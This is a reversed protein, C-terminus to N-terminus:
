RVKDKVNRPLADLFVIEKPVKYKALKLECYLLLNGISLSEGQKFVIYAKPVEGYVEDPVGIVVAELIEPMKSLVEEVEVPYVIKGDCNIMDISRNVYYKIIGINIVGRAM